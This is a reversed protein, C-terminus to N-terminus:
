RRIQPPLPMLLVRLGVLRSTRSASPVLSDRADFSRDEAGHGPASWRRGATKTSPDVNARSLEILWTSFRFGDSDVPLNVSM